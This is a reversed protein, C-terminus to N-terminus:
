KPHSDLKQVLGFRKSSQTKSFSKGAIIEFNNNKNKWRRLYGGDIGVTIPKDPKPLRNWENQCGSIYEPKGELEKEQRKAINQLHNRVTAANETQGVPLVDKLLNATQQFSILSAWKTEIYQLDPSNKDPLWESLPSFTQCPDIYPLV